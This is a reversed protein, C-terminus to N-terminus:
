FKMGIWATLLDVDKFTPADEGRKWTVGVSFHPTLTPRSLVRTKEDVVPRGAGDLEQVQRYGDLGLVLSIESYHYDRDPSRLDRRWNYDAVMALREGLDLEAHIRTFFRTYDDPAAPVLLENGDDYRGVELGIFPRWRFHLWTTGFLPRDVGICLSPVTIPTYSLSVEFARIDHLRDARYQPVLSFSHGTVFLKPPKKTGGEMEEITAGLDKPLFDFTIPVGYIVSDQSLVEDHTDSRNSIHAEFFPTSTVVLRYSQFEAPLPRMLDRFMIALDVNYFADEGKTRTWSAKAPDNIGPDAFFSKRILFHKEVWPILGQGRDVNDPTTPTPVSPPKAVAPPFKPTAPQAMVKEWEDPTITGNDDLDFQKFTAGAARADTFVLALVLITALGWPRITVSPGSM